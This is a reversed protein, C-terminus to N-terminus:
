SSRSRRKERWWHRAPGRKALPLSQPWIRRVEEAASERRMPVMDEVHVIHPRFGPESLLPAKGLGLGLWIASVDLAVAIEALFITRHHHGREILSITAPTVGARAALEKNTLGLARRAARVRAGLGSGKRQKTM